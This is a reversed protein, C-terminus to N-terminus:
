FEKGCLPCFKNEAIFAKEEEIIDNLAKEKEAIKGGVRIINLATKRTESLFVNLKIHREIKEKVVDIDKSAKDLDIHNDLKGILASFRGSLLCYENINRNKRVKKEIEETEKDFDIDISTKKELEVLLRAYDNYQKNIVNLKDLCNRGDVVKDRYKKLIKIDVELKDILEQSHLEGRLKSIESLNENWKRKGRSGDQSIEKILEEMGGLGIVSDMLRAVMNPSCKKGDIESLVYHKDLQFMFNPLDSIEGFEVSTLGLVRTAKEPVVLGVKEYEYVKNGDEHFEIVRYQNLSDGRKVMVIGLETEIEVFVFAHGHRIADKDFKNDTVLKLCRILSSKGSNSEGLLFNLGSVFEVESDEHSEFGIVKLRKIM